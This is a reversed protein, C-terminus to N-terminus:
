NRNWVEDQLLNKMKKYEERVKILEIQESEIETSVIEKDLNQILKNIKRYKLHKIIKEIENFQYEQDTYNNIMFIGHKKEWNESYLFQSTSVEIAFEVVKHNAHHIFYNIDITKGTQIQRIVDEIIGVYFENEFLQIVDLINDTVFQAVSSNQDAWAQNGALVLIKAIEREQFEDGSQFLHQLDKKYTITKEGEDLIQEDRDLADRRKRFSTQKLEERLIKNTSNVLTTEDVKLYEATQQLYISRKIPDDIKAIIAIIENIADAKAIPNNLSEKQLLQMKFLIFDKSEEVLFTEFKESGVKRLYSDPDDGDPILAIQVNLGEKIMIDIGRIAAKIGAADGDYLITVNQSHRALLSAQEETLSTGSSAVVNEIGAQHLSMVDTYGEVLLVRNNKRISNKALHLGFLTKNKKYVESEPSNIYKAIKVDSSMIRGAFGIVKGTQNHIPFIVRNRFFDTGFSNVLGLKQLLERSYLKKAAVEALKKSDEPAFGIEFKRLTHELFGREKFYSLGISKGSDTEWLQEQYFDKAWSNIINLSELELSQTRDEETQATEELQINYRKALARIAEPFTLQEIDMMFQVPGGAKSCGFCKYINKAPSVTFSPTKEKHFPCLGLLNAGRNKLDIYSRVIEEIRASDIVKEISSQLIM